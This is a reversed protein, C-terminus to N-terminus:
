SLPLTHCQMDYLSLSETNAKGAQNWSNMIQFYGWFGKWESPVCVSAMLFRPAFRPIIILISGPNSFFFRHYNVLIKQQFGIRILTEFTNNVHSIYHQQELIFFVYM